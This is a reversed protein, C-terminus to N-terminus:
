VIQLVELFTGSFISVYLKPAPTPPPWQETVHSTHLVSSHTQVSFMTQGSEMTRLPSVYGDPVADSGDFRSESLGNAGASLLSM